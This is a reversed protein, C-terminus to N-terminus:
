EPAQTKAVLQCLKTALQNGADGKIHKELGFNMAAFHAAIGNLKEDRDSVQEARLYKCFAGGIKTM